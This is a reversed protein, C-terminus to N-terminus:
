DSSPPEYQPAGINPDLPTNPRTHEFVRVQRRKADLAYIWGAADAAVDAPRFSSRFVKPPAVVDIFTGDRTYLKIRPIGKESTALRNDPLLTIHSPNCCGHFENIKTGSIGWRQIETLNDDLQIIEHAGPNVVWIGDDDAAVDFYPSPIIFGDPTPGPYQGLITGNFDTKWLCRQGYDAIYVNDHKFAISTLQAKAGLNTVAGIKDGMESYIAATRHFGAAINNDTSIAMCMVDAPTSIKPISTGQLPVISKDIAVILMGGPGVAIARPNGSPLEIQNLERWGILEDPVNEYEEFGSSINANHPNKQFRAMLLGGIFFAVIVAVVRWLLTKNM